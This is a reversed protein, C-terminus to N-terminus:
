ASEERAWLREDIISHEGPTLTLLRMRVTEEDVDLEEALEREDQSWLLAEVLRGLPILRRAAATSAAIEQRVHLVGSVDAVCEDGRVMHELEHALTCRMQRRCMRRDLLLVREDPVWWGRGSPLDDFVVLVDQLRAVTGWPSYENM